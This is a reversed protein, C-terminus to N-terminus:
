SFLSKVLQELHTTTLFQACADKEEMPGMGSM